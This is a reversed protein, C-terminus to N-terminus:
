PRWCLPQSCVIRTAGFSSRWQSGVPARCSRAKSRSPPCPAGRSRTLESGVRRACPASRLSTHLRAQGVDIAPNISKGVDMVIDTRLARHDGTLTDIQVETAAVGSTFYCFPKGEGTEFNFGTVPVKYFAQASLNVREFWAAQVLEKFSAGPMKERIPALRENLQL